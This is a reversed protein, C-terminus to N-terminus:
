DLKLTIKLLSPLTWLAPPSRHKPNECTYCCAGSAGLCMQVAGSRIQDALTYMCYQAGTCAPRSQTKCTCSAPEGLYMQVARSRVPDDDLLKLQITHKHSEGTGM